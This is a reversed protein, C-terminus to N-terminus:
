AKTCSVGIPGENQYTMTGHLSNGGDTSNVNLAIVNQAGARYGIIWNGGPQWPATNGGWQNEVAYNSAGNLTGRFGIPGEGSYTMTGILTKGADTSTVNIAIVNQGSRVGLVFMGGEHWPASSGGWQNMVKYDQNLGIQNARFGIPGEGAYTMTGTLTKGGDASAAKVAVVNQGVRYGIVWSGGPHWPASNGGWQNEVAYNNNGTLTGRFGIPGEGAYTMTGVLTKGGDSSAVDLAIVNQPKSDRGGLVYVGGKNWPASNGGWQNEVYYTAV